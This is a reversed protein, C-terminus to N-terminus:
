SARLALTISCAPKGATWMVPEPVEAEMSPMGSRPNVVMVSIAHFALFMQRATSRGTIMSMSAPYPLAIFVQRHTRSNSRAPMTPPCRSSWTTGLRQPCRSPLRSMEVRSITPLISAATSARVSGSQTSMARVSARSFSPRSSAIRLDFSYTWAPASQMKRSAMSLASSIFRTRSSISAGSSALM